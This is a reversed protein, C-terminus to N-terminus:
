ASRLSLTDICEPEIPKRSQVYDELSRILEDIASRRRYLRDLARSRIANAVPMRDREPSLPSPLAIPMM